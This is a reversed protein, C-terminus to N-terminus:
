TEEKRFLPWFAQNRKLLVTFTLQLRRLKEGQGGTWFLKVTFGKKEVQKLGSQSVPRAKFGLNPASVTM